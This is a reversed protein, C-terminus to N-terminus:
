PSPARGPRDLRVRNRTADRLQAKLADVQSEPLRV